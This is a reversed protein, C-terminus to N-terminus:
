EVGFTNAVLPAGLAIECSGYASHSLYPFAPEPWSPVEDGNMNTTKEFGVGETWAAKTIDRVETGQHTTSFFPETLKTTVQFRSGDIKRLKGSFAFTSLKPGFSSVDESFEVSYSPGTGPDEPTPEEEEYGFGFHFEYPHNPEYPKHKDRDASANCLLGKVTPRTKRAIFDTFEKETLLVPEWDGLWVKIRGLFTMELTSDACGLTNYEGDYKNFMVIWSKDTNLIDSNCNGGDGGQVTIIKSSPGKGKYIKQIQIKGRGDEYTALTKVKAVVVGKEQASQQANAFGACSCAEASMHIASVLIIVFLPLCLTKM